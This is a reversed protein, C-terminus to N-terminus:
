AALQGDAILVVRDAWELMREDHTVMLGAAQSRKVAEALLRVVEKGRAYDLNATPEDALLVHPDNMLARGVAVRQREGGSLQEPYHDMRSKLGLHDLLGEAKQTATGNRKGALEAILLLQDRARLYPVLNANQFVFGIQSLRLATLEKQSMSTIEKGDLTVTGETPHLFAGAVALLTTKGSGSPGIVAVLEGSNVSLSVGKLAQVAQEGHGYQMSINELTIKSM